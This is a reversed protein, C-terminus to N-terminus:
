SLLDDMTFLGKRGYVWEAAQVAGLAFGQRNRSSHTLTVTDSPSDFIVEHSGPDEGIRLSIVQLEEPTIARDELCDTIIKTKRPIKSQIIDALLKGAGSPSDKKQNHHIDLCAVDYHQFPNFLAAAEAVIKFFINMGIAFNPAYLLGIKYTEVLQKVLEMNNYWGTTGVVINKHLPAIARVNDVASQPNSFEICVDANKLGLATINTQNGEKPDIITCITHGRAIAAQEVMRGMKGYGIIAIQLPKVPTNM